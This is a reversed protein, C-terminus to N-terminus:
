IRRLRFTLISSYTWELIRNKRMAPQKGAYLTLEYIGAAPLRGSIHYSLRRPLVDVNTLEAASDAAGAPKFSGTVTYAGDSKLSFEFSGDPKIVPQTSSLEYFGMEFYSSYFHPLRDFYAKTVPQELLQWETDEPLHTMAFYAPECMFWTEDIRKERLTDRGWTVDMLKWENNIKVANWSHNLNAVAENALTGYGRAYGDIIECEIGALGCMQKFLAAYGACVSKRGTFTVQGLEEEPLQYPSQLMTLAEDDYHINAAMWVFVARVKQLNTVAGRTLYRTYAPITKQVSDPVRWARRDTKYFLSSQGNTHLSQVFIFLLFFLKRVAKTHHPPRLFVYAAKGKPAGWRLALKLILPSTLIM